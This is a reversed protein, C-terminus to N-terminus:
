SDYLLVKVLENSMHSLVFASYNETDGASMRQWWFIFGSWLGKMEICGSSEGLLRSGNLESGQRVPTWGLSPKSWGSAQLLILVCWSLLVYCFFPFDSMLAHIWRGHSVAHDWCRVNLSRHVMDLSYSRMGRGWRAADDYSSLHSISLGYSKRLSLSSPTPITFSLTLFFRVM